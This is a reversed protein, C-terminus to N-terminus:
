LTTQQSARDYPPTGTDRRGPLVPRRREPTEDERYCQVYYRGANRYFKGGFGLTGCFRWEIATPSTFHRVFSDADRPDAGVEEVLIKYITTLM